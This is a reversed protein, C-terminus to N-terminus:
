QTQWILHFLRYSLFRDLILIIEFKMGRYSCPPTPRIWCVPGPKPYERSRGLEWMKGMLMHRERLVPVKLGGLVM